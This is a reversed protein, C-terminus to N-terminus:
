APTSKTSFDDLFARFTILDSNVPQLKSVGEFIEIRTKKIRGVYFFYLDQDVSHLVTMNTCFFSQSVVPQM